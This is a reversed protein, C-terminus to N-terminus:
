KKEFTEKVLKALTLKNEQDAAYSLGITGLISAATSIGKLIKIGKETNIKLM